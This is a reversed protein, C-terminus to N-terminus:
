QSVAATYLAWAAYLGYIALAGCCLGVIAVAAAAADEDSRGQGGKIVKIGGQGM